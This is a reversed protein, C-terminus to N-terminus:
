FLFSFGLRIGPGHYKPKYYANEQNKVKKRWIGWQYEFGAYVAAHAGMDFVGDISAKGIIGYYFGNDEWNHENGQADFGNEHKFMMNFGIQGKIVPHVVFNPVPDVSLFASIPFMFVKKEYSHSFKLALTDGEVQKQDVVYNWAFDLDCGVGIIDDFVRGYEITMNWAAPKKSGNLEKPWVPGIGFNIINQSLVNSKILFM